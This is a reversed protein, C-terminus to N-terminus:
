NMKVELTILMSSFKFLIWKPMKSIERYRVFNPCVSACVDPRVVRFCLPDEEPRVWLIVNSACFVLNVLFNIIHVIYM